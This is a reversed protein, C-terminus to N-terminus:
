DSNKLVSNEHQKSTYLLFNRLFVEREPMENKSFINTYPYWFIYYRTGPMIHSTDQFYSPLYFFSIITFIIITILKRYHIFYKSYNINYLFDAVYIFFMPKIYNHFRSGISSNGIFIAAIIYIIVYQQTWFYNEGHLKKDNIHFIIYPIFFYTILGLIKGNLNSDYNQYTKFNIEVLDTIFFLKLINTGYDFIVVSIFFMFLIFPITIKVYRFLPLIFLIIASSHFSFAIINLLYYIIWRKEIFYKASLLFFCIALAERQIEINFYLYFFLFYILIATFKHNSYKNVFYFYVSNVIIAHVFQFLIYDNYISKIIANLSIWSPSFLTIAYGTNKGQLIQTLNPLYNEFSNEYGFSDGGLKYRCGAVLIAILLLSRYAIKSGNKKCIDFNYIYILNLLIVTFYLM